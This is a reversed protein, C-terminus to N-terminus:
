LISIAYIRKNMKRNIYDHARVRYLPRNRKYSQAASWLDRLYANCTIWPISWSLRCHVILLANLLYISAHRRYIVNIVKSTVVTPFIIYSTPVTIIVTSTSTEISSKKAAEQGAGGFFGKMLHELLRPNIDDVGSDVSTSLPSYKSNGYLQDQSFSSQVEKIHPREAEFSNVFSPM